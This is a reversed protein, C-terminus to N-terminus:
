SVPAFDEYDIGEFVKDIEFLTDALTRDPSGNELGDALQNFRELHQTFRQIAYERAQGTTVLFSWDSSSLLLLERAAQNLVAREDDGPETFTQALTQMRAESEHIPQWMWHTEGNDWTFHTGGAGWSGEPIHLTMQPPYDELYKTATTLEIEPNNALHRLVKGLWTVGEFWWHGFLETDYNSSIMGYNGTENHYDRLLDGVLHAFHEAHQDVKYNAWDPHYYDKEPLDVKEGTVRWYQLGSTGAKRHFERYDFDGPYGWDASWVQQGTRNNRGMVAVGSNDGNNEPSSSDSVWYAHFTNVDRRPANLNQSSPIVYRRKIDGYPGIVDGAAIGVPQGGTIAHTESFFIKLDLQKLFHEIGPRTMGNDDFYAPRYACEPLWIGTPKRGFLREHTRVATKLQGVIASDHGLLPLYGHTAASTIIEIYGEDQLTRFAGIIDRNFRNIFADKVSSYWNKYWRALLLLHEDSQTSDLSQFDPFKEAGPLTEVDATKEQAVAINKPEDFYWMDREAATIRMNLYDEFHELVLPDNLQEGLVPTIGITLKFDVGDGKLDYLTQLLPIYTETAAEHIWEEGHPWRGALRAYPMHSHLVFTFAGISAM